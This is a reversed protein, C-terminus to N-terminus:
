PDPIPTKKTLKCDQLHQGQRTEKFTLASLFPWLKTIFPSASLKSLVLQYSFPTFSLFDFISIQAVPHINSNTSIFQSCPFFPVQPSLNSLRPVNHAESLYGSPFIPYAPSSLSPPSTTNPWMLMYTISGQWGTNLFFRVQTQQIRTSYLQPVMYCSAQIGDTFGAWQLHSFVKGRKWAEASPLPTPPLNYSKDSAGNNPSSFWGSHSRNRTREMRHQLCSVTFRQKERSIQPPTSNARTVMVSGIWKESLSLNM